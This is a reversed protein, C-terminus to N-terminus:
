VVQLLKGTVDPSIYLSLTLYIEGLKARIGAFDLIKSLRKRQTLAFIQSIIISNTVPVGYRRTVTVPLM